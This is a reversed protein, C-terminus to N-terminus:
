WFIASASGRVVIKPWWHSPRRWGTHTLGRGDFRVSDSRVTKYRSYRHDWSTGLIFHSWKSMWSVTVLKVCNRCNWLWLLDIAESCNNRGYLWTIQETRQRRLADLPSLFSPIVVPYSTLMVVARHLAPSVSADRGPKSRPRILRSLMAEPRYWGPQNSSLVVVNTPYTQPKVSGCGVPPKSHCCPRTWRRTASWRMGGDMAFPNEGGGCCCCCGPILHFYVTQGGTPTETSERVCVGACVCVCV